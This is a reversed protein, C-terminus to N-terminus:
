VEVVWYRRGTTFGQQGLISVCSDFRQPDNPLLSRRQRCNLSVQPDDDDDTNDDDVGADSLRLQEENITDCEDTSVYYVKKKDASVVVWSAATAPDMTVDVALVLFINLLTISM